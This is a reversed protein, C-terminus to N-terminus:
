PAPLGLHRSCRLGSLTYKDAHGCSGPQATFEVEEGPQKREGEAHQAYEDRHQWSCGEQQQSCGHEHAARLLKVKPEGVVAHKTREDAIIAKVARNRQAGLDDRKQKEIEGDTVRQDKHHFVPPQARQKQRDRCTYGPMDELELGEASFHPSFDLPM